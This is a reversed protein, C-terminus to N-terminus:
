APGSMYADDKKILFLVLSPIFGFFLTGIWILLAMNKSDQNNDLTNEVADNSMKVEKYLGKRLYSRM